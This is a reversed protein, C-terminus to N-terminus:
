RNAKKAQKEAYMKEDALRFMEDSINLEPTRKCIGASFSIEYRQEDATSDKIKKRLVDLLFAPEYTSLICFEDGGFRTAKASYKLCVESLLHGFLTLVKDGELHGFTDNIQKFRDLDIMILYFTDGVKFKRELEQLFMEKKAVSTLADHLITEDKLLVYIYFIFLTASISAYPLQDSLNGLLLIAICPLCCIFSNRLRRTSISSKAYHKHMNELLSFVVYGYTSLCYVFYFKGPIARGRADFTFIIDNHYSLLILGLTAFFPVKSVISEISTMKPTDFRISRRFYRYVCYSFYCGGAYYLSTVIYRLLYSEVGTIFFVSSVIQTLNVFTVAILCINTWQLQWYEPLSM